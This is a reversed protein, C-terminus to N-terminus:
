VEPTLLLTGEPIFTDKTGGALVIDIDFVYRGVDLGATDAPDLKLIMTEHPIEKQILVPSEYDKRMTFTVPESSLPTYVDGDDDYITVETVFTDGRTLIITTGYIKFMIMGRTTIVIIAQRM